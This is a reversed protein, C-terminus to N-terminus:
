RRHRSIALAAELAAFAAARDQADMGIFFGAWTLALADDQGHVLAAERCAPISMLSPRCCPDYADLSDPRKRRVREIEAKRVSSAIAGLVALAIEDQLAFIDESGRDYREAWAHAGCPM